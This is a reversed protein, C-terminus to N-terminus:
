KKLPMVKFQYFTNDFDFKVEIKNCSIILCFYIDDWFLKILRLSLIGVVKEQFIEQLM